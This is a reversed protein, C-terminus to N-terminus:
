GPDSNDKAQSDNRRATRSLIIRNYAEAYLRAQANSQETVGNELVDGTNELVRLGFTARAENPSLETGPVELAYGAVALLRRDGRELAELADMQATNVGAQAPPHENRPQNVPNDCGFLMASGILLIRLM